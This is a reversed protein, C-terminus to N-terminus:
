IVSNKSSRGKKAQWVFGAKNLDDVQQQRMTGRKWESRRNKAWNALQKDKEYRQPIWGHGEKEVYEVVRKVMDDFNADHTERSVPNRPKSHEQRKWEFGISTLSEIQWSSLEKRRFKTRQKEVWRGLKDHRLPVNCHGNEEKYKILNTFMQEWKEKMTMM